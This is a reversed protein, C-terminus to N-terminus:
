SSAHRATPPAPTAGPPRGAAVPGARRGRSSLRGRQGLCSGSLAAGALLLGRLTARRGGLWINITELTRLIQALEDPPIFETDMREPALCRTKFILSM